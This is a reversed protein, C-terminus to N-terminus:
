IQVSRGLNTLMLVAYFYLCTFRLSRKEFSLLALQYAKLELVNIHLQQWIERALNNM